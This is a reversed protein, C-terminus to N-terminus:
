PASGWADDNWTRWTGDEVRHLHEEHTVVDVLVDFFIIPNGSFSLTTKSLYTGPEEQTIFADHRYVGTGLDADHFGKYGTRILSRDTQVGAAPGWLVSWDLLDLEAIADERSFGFLQYGFFLVAGGLFPEDECFAWRTEPSPKEPLFLRFNCNPASGIGAMKIDMPTPTVHTFAIEFAQLASTVDGITCHRAAQEGSYKPPQAFACATFLSIILLTVNRM